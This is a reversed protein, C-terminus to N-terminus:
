SRASISRTSCTTNEAVQVIDTMVNSMETALAGWSYGVGFGVIVVKAPEPSRLRNAASDAILLPMSTMSTNGFREINIPAQEERLKLKKVINKLIFGNAQHFVFLDVEPTRWGRLETVANVLPPVRQLTFNFIALGDMSLDRQSRTNGAEDTHEAFIEPSPM